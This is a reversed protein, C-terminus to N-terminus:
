PTKMNINFNVNLQGNADITRNSIDAICNNFEPYEDINVLVLKSNDPFTFNAPLRNETINNQTTQNIEFQINTFTLNLFLDDNNRSYDSNNLTKIIVVIMKCNTGSGSCSCLSGTENNWKLSGAMTGYQYTVSVSTASYVFHNFIFMFTIILLLSKINM